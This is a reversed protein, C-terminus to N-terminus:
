GVSTLSEAAVTGARRGFIVAGAIMAGGSFINPGVINGAVEGAAFLGPIPLAYFPPTSCAVM